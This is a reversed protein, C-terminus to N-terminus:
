FIPKVKIQRISNDNVVRTLLILFKNDKSIAASSISSIDEYTVEQELVNTKFNYKSVVNGNVVYILNGVVIPKSYYSIGKSLVTETFNNLDLDYLRFSNNDHDVVYLKNNVIDLRAPSFDLGICNEIGSKITCLQKDTYNSVFVTDSVEDYTLGDITHSLFYEVEVTPFTNHNFIVVKSSTNTAIGGVVKNGVVVVDVGDYGGSNYSIYTPNLKDTFDRKTIRRPGGTAGNVEYSFMDKSALYQGQGFSTEKSVFSPNLPNSYDLLINGKNFDGVLVFDKDGDLNVLYSPSSCNSNKTYCLYDISISSNGDKKFVSFYADNKGCSVTFLLCLMLLYKM